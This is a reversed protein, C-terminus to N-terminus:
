NYLRWNVGNIIVKKPFAEFQEWTDSAYPPVMRKTMPHMTGSIDLNLTPRWNVRYIRIHWKVGLVRITTTTTTIGCAYAYGPPATPGRAYNIPSLKRWTSSSSFDIKHPFKQQAPITVKASKAQTKFAVVLFHVEWLFYQSRTNGCTATTTSATITITYYVNENKTCQLIPILVTFGFNTYFASGNECRGVTPRVLLHFLKAFLRSVQETSTM